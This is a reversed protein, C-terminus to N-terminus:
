ASDQRRAALLMMYMIVEQHHLPAPCLISLRLTAM